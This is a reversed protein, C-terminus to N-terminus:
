HLLFKSTQTGINIFILGKSDISNLDISTQGTLIIQSLLLAGSGNYINLRQNSQSYIIISDDFYQIDSQPRGLSIINSFSETGDYDVQQLKAYAYDFEFSLYNYNNIQHTTGNGPIKTDINWNKADNSVLIQFFDNNRESATSWTYHISKNDPNREANFNILSVPLPAQQCCLDLFAVAGTATFYDSLPSGPCSNCYVKFDCDNANAGTYNGTIELKSYCDGIHVEAGPFLTISGTLNLTSRNSINLIGGDYILISTYASVTINEEVCVTTNSPIVLSGTPFNANTYNIDCQGFTIHFAAMALIILKSIKKM